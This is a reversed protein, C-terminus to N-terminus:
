FIKFEVLAQSLLQTILLNLRNYSKACFTHETDTNIKLVKFKPTSAILVCALLVYHQLHPLLHHKNENLM